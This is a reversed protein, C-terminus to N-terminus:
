IYMAGIDPTLGPWGVYVINHLVPTTGAYLTPTTRPKEITHCKYSVAKIEDMGGGEEM